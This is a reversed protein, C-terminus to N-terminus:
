VNSIEVEKNIDVNAPNQRYGLALGWQNTVVIGRLATSFSSEHMQPFKGSLREQRFYQLVALFFIYFIIM